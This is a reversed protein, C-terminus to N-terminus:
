AKWEIDFPTIGVSKPFVYGDKICLKENSHITNFSSNIFDISNKVIQNRYADNILSQSNLDKEFERLLFNQYLDEKKRLFEIDTM